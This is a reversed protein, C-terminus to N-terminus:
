EDKEREKRREVSAKIISSSNMLLRDYTTRWVLPSMYESAEGMISPRLRSYSIMSATDCTLYELMADLSRWRGMRMLVYYPVGIGLLEHARGGRWVHGSLFDLAWDPIIGKYIIKRLENLKKAFLNIKGKFPGEYDYDQFIPSRGPLILEKDTTLVVYGLLISIIKRNTCSRRAPKQRWRKPIRDELNFIIKNNINTFISAADNKQYDLYAVIGPCRDHKGYATCDNIIEPSVSDWYIGLNRRTFNGSGLANPTTTTCTENQRTMTEYHWKDVMWCYQLENLQELSSIYTLGKPFLRDYAKMLAGEGLWYKSERKRYLPVQLQIRRDASLWTPFTRKILTKPAGLITKYKGMSICYAVALKFVWTRKTSGGCHPNDNQGPTNLYKIRIFECLLPFFTRVNIVRSVEDKVFLIMEKWLNCISKYKTKTLGLTHEWVYAGVKTVKEEVGKYYVAAENRYVQEAATVEDNPLFSDRVGVDRPHRAEFQPRAM